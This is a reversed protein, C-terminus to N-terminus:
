QCRIRGELTEKNRKPFVYMVEDEHGGADPIVGVREGGTLGIFRQMRKNSSAAFAILCTCPTNEMMWSGMKITFDRYGRIDKTNGITHISYKYIGTAEVQVFLTDSFLFLKNLPHYLQERVWLTGKDGICKTAIESLDELDRITCPIM